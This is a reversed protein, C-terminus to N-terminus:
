YTQKPTDKTHKVLAFHDYLFTRCAFMASLIDTTKLYIPGEYKEFIHKFIVTRLTPVNKNLESQFVM